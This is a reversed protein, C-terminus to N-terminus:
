RADSTDAAPEPGGPWDQRHNIVATHQHTGRHRQLLCLGLRLALDVEEGDDEVALLQIVHHHLAAPGALVAPWFSSFLIHPPHQTSASPSVTPNFHIAAAHLIRAPWAPRRCQCPLSIACELHSEGAFPSRGRRPEEGEGGGGKERVQFRMPTLPLQPLQAPPLFSGQRWCM